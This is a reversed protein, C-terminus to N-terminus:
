RHPVSHAGLVARKPVSRHCCRAATRLATPLQAPVDRDPRRVRAADGRLELLRGPPVGRRRHFRRSPRRSGVRVEDVRRIRGTVYGTRIPVAPHTSPPQHDRVAGADGRQPATAPEGPYPRGGTPGGRHPTGTRATVVLVSITRRRAAHVGATGAGGGTGSRTRPREGRSGTGSRNRGSRRGLQVHGRRPRLHRGSRGRSRPLPATSRVHVELTDDGRPWRSPRGRRTRVGGHM